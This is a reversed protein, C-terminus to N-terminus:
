RFYLAFRHVTEFIEPFLANVSEEILQQFFQIAAEDDLDQRFKDRVKSICSPDDVDPIGCGAMLHFLNLILNASKRLINYAECCLSRFRAYLASDSGGMSEVMEMCLKM